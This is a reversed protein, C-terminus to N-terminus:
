QIKLLATTLHYDTFAFASQLDDKARSIFRLLNYITKPVLFLGLKLLFQFTIESTKAPLM